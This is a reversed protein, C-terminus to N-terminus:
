VEVVQYRLAEQPLYTTYLALRRGAGGGGAQLALGAGASPGNCSLEHVLVRLMEADDLAPFIGAMRLRVEAPPGAYGKWPFLADIGEYDCRLKSTDIGMERLRGTVIEAALRARELAGGGAYSIEGVGLYGAPVNLCVLTTPPKPHGTTGTVRVRDPGTNVLETTTFDLTADTHRYDAPDGIEYLIQELCTLRNVAGGTGPLKTITADGSAEVLAIPFGVRHLDPAIKYPPDPFYGGTCQAGCELIHGVGLGKALLDWRDAAWGLEHILPALFQTSDGIRGCIVIDAGRRLAEVVPQASIYANASLLADGYAGVRQGTEAVIPDIERVLDLVDDGLVAMVRLRPFGLERCLAKTWRAVGYPDTVGMNTVIRTQTRACAPIIRPMRRENQQWFATGGTPQGLKFGGIGESMNDFVLYDVAGSEALALAAEVNDWGHASGCGLRVVGARRAFLEMPDRAPEARGGAPPAQAALAAERVRAPDFGPPAEIEMALLVSSWIKGLSDLALTGGPGDALVNDITFNLAGLRPLDYREVPGATIEGVYERVVDATVHERVWEYHRPDYVAIGANVGHKKNGSRGLCIERLRIRNGM